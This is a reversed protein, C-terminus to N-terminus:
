WKKFNILQLYLGNIFDMCYIYPIINFFIQLLRETNWLSEWDRQGSCDKKAKDFQSFDFYLLFLIEVGMPAICSAKYELYSNWQSAFRASIGRAALLGEEGHSCNDNRLIPIGCLSNDNRRLLFRRRAPKQKVFNLGCSFVSDVIIYTYSKRRRIPSPSTVVINSFKM